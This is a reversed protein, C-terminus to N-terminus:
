TGLRHGRGAGEAQDSRSGAAALVAIELAVLVPIVATWSLVVFPVTGALLLLANWRTLPLWAAVMVLIGGLAGVVMVLAPGAAVMLIQCAGLASLLVRPWNDVLMRGTQRWSDITLVAAATLLVAAPYWVVGATTLCLLGPGLMGLALGARASTSRTRRQGLAAAGALVSLGITLLGLGANDLKDGTLEPLGYGAITQILGAVIGLVAGAIGLRTALLRRSM